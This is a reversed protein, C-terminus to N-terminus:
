AAAGQTEYTEAEPNADEGDIADSVYFEREEVTEMDAAIGAYFGQGAALLAKAKIVGEGQAFTNSELDDLLALIVRYQEACSAIWQKIGPSKLEAILTDARGIERECRERIRGYVIRDDECMLSLEDSEDMVSEYSVEAAMRGVGEYTPETAAAAAASNDDTTPEAAARPAPVTPSEPPNPEALGAPAAEPKDLRVPETGAAPPSVPRPPYDPKPPIHIPAPDAEGAATCRKRYTGVASRGTDKAWYVGRATWNGLRRGAPTAARAIPSHSRYGAKFAAPLSVLPETAGAEVPDDASSTETPVGSHREAIRRIAKEHRVQEKMLARQAPSIGLKAQESQAGAAWALLCAAILVEM